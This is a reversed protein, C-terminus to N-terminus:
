NNLYLIIGRYHINEMGKEESYELSQRFEDRDRGGGVHKDSLSKKAYRGAVGDERKQDEDL